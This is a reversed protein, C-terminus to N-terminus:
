VENISELFNKDSIEKKSFCDQIKINVINNKIVFLALDDFMDYDNDFLEKVNPSNKIVDLFFENKM